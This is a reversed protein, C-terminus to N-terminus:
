EEIMKEMNGVLPGGCVKDEPKQMGGRLRMALSLTAQQQINYESLTRGDELQKGAFFLRQQNIPIGQKNQIWAKVKEIDDSPKVEIAVTNGTLTKAFIQMGVYRVDANGIQVQLQRMDDILQLAGAWCLSKHWTTIAASCITM